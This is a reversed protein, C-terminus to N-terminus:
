NLLTGNKFFPSTVITGRKIKGRIDIELDIGINAFKKDILGLAIGKGISPSMTGSTIRGVLKQSKYILCGTRPISKENMEICVLKRKIKNIDKELSAKGIFNGKKFKTIWGLGGELPSISDDIENGYLPYAMELRLTDRCGLGVPCIGFKSGSDMLLNWLHVISKSDIYLEYGLEGTYGTRAITLDEGAYKETIFHYFPLSELNLNMLYELVKRSKPGQIALLGIKDSKNEIKVDGNINKKIWRLNKEINSANVVMMFKDSYKYIILDDVIGGDEYCMATYQAQGVGIAKINNITIKQLFLEADNGSIIFEGMHCVDFLGVKSRVIQHEFNISSYFTPLLFGSFSVMRGNLSLHNHYLPTKKEQM